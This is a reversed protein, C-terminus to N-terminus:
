IPLELNDSWSEFEDTEAGVLNLQDRAGAVSDKGMAWRLPPSELSSFRFIAEAALRPDGRIGSGDKLWDRVVQSPL